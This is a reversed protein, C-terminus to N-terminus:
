FLVINQQAFTLIGFRVEDGGKVSGLDLHVLLEEAMVPQLSQEYVIYYGHAMRHDLM